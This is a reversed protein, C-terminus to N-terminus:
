QRMPILHALDVVYPTNNADHWSGGVAHATTDTQDITLKRVAPTAASVAPSQTTQWLGTVCLMSVVSLVVFRYLRTTYM